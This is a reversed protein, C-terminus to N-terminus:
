ESNASAIQPRKNKQIFEEIFFTMSIKLPIVNFILIAKPLIAMKVINQWDM